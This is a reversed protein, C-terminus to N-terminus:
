SLNTLIYQISLFKIISSKQLRHFARSIHLLGGFTFRKHNDYFWLVAFSRGRFNECIHYILM